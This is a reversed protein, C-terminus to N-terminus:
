TGKYERLINVLHQVYRKCKRQVNNVNKKIKTPHIKGDNTTRM